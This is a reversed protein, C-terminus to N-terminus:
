TRSRFDVQCGQCDYRLLSFDAQLQMRERRASYLLLSTNEIFCYYLTNVGLFCVASGPRLLRDRWQLVEWFACLPQGTELNTFSSVGSPFVYCTMGMGNYLRKRDMEMNTYKGRKM